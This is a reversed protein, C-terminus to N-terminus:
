RRQKIWQRTKRNASARLFDYPAKGMVQRLDLLGLAKLSLAAINIRESSLSTERELTDTDVTQHEVACTAVSVMDSEPDYGLLDREMYLWALARPEVQNFNYEGSGVTERLYYALGLDDLEDVGDNVEVSSLDLARAIGPGDALNHLGVELVLHRLIMSAELSLNEINGLRRNLTSGLQSSAEALPAGTEGEKAERIEIAKRIGRTVDLWATDRNTWTTIPKADKPLAQLRGLPSGEWDTPRVIVPIVTAEDRDHMELARRVEKEYCYDSAIFEPSILLVIIDSTELNTDLIAEWDQGPIIKRDHWETLIGERKIQSLHTELRERHREDKHSYSYFLKVPM